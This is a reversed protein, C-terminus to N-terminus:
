RCLCFTDINSPTSLLDSCPMVYRLTMDLGLPEGIAVMALGLVGVGQSAQKWKKSQDEEEKEDKKEEKGKENEENDHHEGCLSLLKQVQLVSGTGMYACTEVTRSLYEKIPHEITEVVQLITEVEEGTGFYLLGMGLCMMRAVSDNLETDTRETFAEIITTSIEEDATGVYVLGITLCTIACVDMPTTDAVIVPVLIELIDQRASGAYAYGM